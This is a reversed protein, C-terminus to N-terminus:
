STASTKLLRRAAVAGLAGIALVPGLHGLLAHAADDLPCILQIALAGTAMAATLALAATWALSLPAARRLMGVLVAAPVLGIAMVRIFCVYWHSVGAFGQGARTIAAIVTVLWVGLLALTTARLVLTREAGPIALVLSAVVAVATTLLALAGTWLFGSQSAHAMVDPRAGFVVVGAAASAIAVAGWALARIGPSPLPRVPAARSALDAILEETRM